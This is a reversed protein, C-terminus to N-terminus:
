SSIEVSCGWLDVVGTPDGNADHRPEAGADMIEDSLADSIMAELAEVTMLDDGKIIVVVSRIRM